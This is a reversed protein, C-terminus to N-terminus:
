YDFPDRERKKEKRPKGQDREWPYEHDHTNRKALDRELEGFVHAPSGCDFAPRSIELGTLRAKVPTGVL